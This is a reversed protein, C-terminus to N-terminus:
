ELDEVTLSYLNEPDMLKGKYYIEFHLSNKYTSNIKSQASKGIITNQNVSDGEKLTIKDIGQYVSILDNSHKIQIINGLTEDKTLKIVQGDLISVIDFVEDSIYDVGSNQMYTGEYYIISKVQEESNAEFDYFYKGVSVKDSIYPKVISTSPKVVPTEEEDFVEDVSYDYDIKDDSLYKNLGNILVYVCGVVILVALAYVGPVIIKKYNIKKLM